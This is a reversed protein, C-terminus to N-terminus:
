VEQCTKFFLLFESPTLIKRKSDMLFAILISHDPACCNMNELREFFGTKGFDPDNPNIIKYSKRKTKELLSIAQNESEYFNM